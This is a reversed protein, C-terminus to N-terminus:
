QNQFTATPPTFNSTYRAVGNTVRLDDLYANLPFAGGSDYGIRNSTASTPNMNSSDSVNSGSQVGNVFLRLTGSSRCLAFHTWTGATLTIDGGTSGFGTLVGGADILLYINAGGTRIDIVVQYTGTTAIMRIWGEITYNGTGFNFVSTSNPTIYAGATAPFLISSSGFKQEATSIKAGGVATWPAAVTSSDTITTSNNAGEGRLLTSVSSYYADKLAVSLWKKTSLGQGSLRRISM